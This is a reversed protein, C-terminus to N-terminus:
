EICRGSPVRFGLLLQRLEEIELVCALFTADIFPLSRGISYFGPMDVSSRAM